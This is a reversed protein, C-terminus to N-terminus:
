RIVAHSPRRLSDTARPGYGFRVLLNPRRGAFGALAAVQPRFRPVEVPQNVFAHKLGMETAVLAFRQYARGAEIWGVPSDEQACFLALGASSRVQAATKESESKPRLVLPLIRRGLWAPLSPSGMAGSYLGDRSALAQGANFRIWDCLESVFAGDELQETNAEVVLDCLKAMEEDSEFIRCEVGDRRGAEALRDLDGTALKRGDYEVRSCQRVVIQRVLPSPEVDGPILDIEIGDASSRAEAALGFVAAALVLNEAACGLSAYLHHDDADVVPTRRDLDPRIAIRSDGIEFIWPQTNHGNAALTAARVLETTRDPAAAELPRRLDGALTAYDKSSM